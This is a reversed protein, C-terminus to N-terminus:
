DGIIIPPDFHTLEQEILEIPVTDEPFDFTHGYYFEKFEQRIVKGNKEWWESNRKLVLAFSRAVRRSRETTEDLTKRTVNALAQTANHRDILLQKLQCQKLTSWNDFQSNIIALLEVLDKGSKVGIFDKFRTVSQQISSLEKLLAGEDRSKQAIEKVLREMQAAESYNMTLKTAIDRMLTSSEQRKKATARIVKTKYTDYTEGEIATIFQNHILYQMYKKIISPQICTHKAVHHLACIQDDLEYQLICLYVQSIGPYGDTEMERMVELFNKM